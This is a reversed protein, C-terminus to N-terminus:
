RRDMCHDHNSAWPRSFRGPPDAQGIGSPRQGRVHVDHGEPRAHLGDELIERALNENLGRDRNIGAVSNPGISQENNLYILMAPHSEAALLMDHFRGLVHARIAEREYGGVMVSTDANVCFHNSWFWVLREVFGIEAGVAADFRARAEKLFIQRPLPPETQVPNAAPAPPKAEMVPASQDEMAARQQAERQITVTYRADV